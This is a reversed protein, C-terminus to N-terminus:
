QPQSSHAEDKEGACKTNTVMNSGTIVIESTPVTLIETEASRYICTFTELSGRLVWKKCAWVGWQQSIHRKVCM